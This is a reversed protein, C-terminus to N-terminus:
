ARSGDSKMRVVRECTSRQILLWQAPLMRNGSISSRISTADSANIVASWVNALIHPRARMENPLLAATSWHQRCHLRGKGRMSGEHWMHFFPLGAAASYRVRLLALLGHPDTAPLSSGVVPKGGGLSGGQMGGGLQQAAQQAQQQRALAQQQQLRM